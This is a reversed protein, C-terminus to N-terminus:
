SQIFCCTNVIIIEAAQPDDIIHYHKEEILGLMMESDITNKDCGLTTMHITKM